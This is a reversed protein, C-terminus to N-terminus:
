SLFRKASDAVAAADNQCRLVTNAIQESLSIKDTDASFTVIRGSSSKALELFGYRIKVFLEAGADDYHNRCRKSNSLRSIALEPEIDLLITLDPECSGISLKTIEKILDLSLGKVYGQYVLSSDLFRDSIVIKNQSLAKQIINTVHDRRAANFLLFETLPDQVGDGELLIARLAEAFPTGGPERTVVVEIGLSELTASLLKVQTSKGCAEMGEFTIFMSLEGFRQISGIALLLFVAGSNKVNL